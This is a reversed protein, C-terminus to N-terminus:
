CQLEIHGPCRIIAQGRIGYANFTGTQPAGAPKGAPFKGLCTQPALLVCRSLQDGDANGGPRCCAAMAHRTRVALLDLLGSVRLSDKLADATGPSRHPDTAGASPISRSDAPLEARMQECRAGFVPAFHSGDMSRATLLKCCETLDYLGLDERRSSIRIRVLVECASM